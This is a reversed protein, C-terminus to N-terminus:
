VVLAMCLDWQPSQIPRHLRIGHIYLRHQSTEHIQGPAKGRQLLRRKLKTDGILVAMSFKRYWLAIAVALLVFFAIIAIPGNPNYLASSTLSRYLELSVYRWQRDRKDEKILQDNNRIHTPPYILIVITASIRHM